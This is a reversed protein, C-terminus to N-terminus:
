VVRSRDRKFRDNVRKLLGARGKRPRKRPEADDWGMVSNAVHVFADLNNPSAQREDDPDWQTLQTELEPHRGLHHVENRDYATSLAISRTKKDKFSYAKRLGIKGTMGAREIAQRLLSIGTNGIKNEEYIIFTAGWAKALRVAEDSWGLQKGHDAAEYADTRDELLVLEDTDTRGAAVLGSDDSKRKTSVAPDIGVGVEVLKPEEEIRGAEIQAASAIASENDGLLAAELEQRGVRTGGYKREWDALAEPHLNSRNEHTTGHVVLVRRDMIMAELWPQRKPTTTLLMQPEGRPDRLALSLNDLVAQLRRWKIPEDGWVFDFNGGRQEPDEATALYVTAGYPHVYIEQNNKNWETEARVHPPLVDLFGSTTNPLGGVMTRRVDRWTPGILLLSRAHGAEIRHWATESGTRTKGIGRGGLILAIRWGWRSGPFWDPLEPDAVVLQKPRGWVHWDNEVHVWDIGALDLGDPGGLEEAISPGQLERGLEIIEAMREQLQDETFARASM